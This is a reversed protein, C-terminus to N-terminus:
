SQYQSAIPQSAYSHVAELDEPTFRRIRLQDNIKYRM